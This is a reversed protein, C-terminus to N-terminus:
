RDTTPIANTLIIQRTSDLGLHERSWNMFESTRIQKEGSLVAYEVPLGDLTKSAKMVKAVDAIALHEALVAEIERPVISIGIFVSAVRTLELAQIKLLRSFGERVIRHNQTADVERPNGGEEWDICESLRKRAEQRYRYFSFGRALL